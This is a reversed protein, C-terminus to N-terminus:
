RLGLEYAENNLWDNILQALATYYGLRDGKSVNHCWTPVWYLLHDQLFQRQFEHFMAARELRNLYRATLMENSLYYMFELQVSLHDPLEFSDSYFALEAQRYAELVSRAPYRIIEGSLSYASAYPPALLEPVDDIFLREYEEQLLALCDPESKPLLSLATVIPRAQLSLPTLVKQLSEQWHNLKAVREATPYMLGWALLRYASVREIERESAIPSFMETNM